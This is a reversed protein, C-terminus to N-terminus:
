RCASVNVRRYAEISRLRAAIISVSGNPAALVPRAHDRV